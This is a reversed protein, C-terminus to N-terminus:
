GGLALRTRLSRQINFRGGIMRSHDAEKKPREKCKTDLPWNACSCTDMLLMRFPDIFSAEHDCWLAKCLLPSSVVCCRLLMSSDGVSVAAPDWM